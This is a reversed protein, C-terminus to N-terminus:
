IQARYTMMVEIYHDFAANIKRQFSATHKTEFALKGQNLLSEFESLKLRRISTILRHQVAEFDSLKNASLSHAILRQDKRWEKIMLDMVNKILEKQQDYDKEISSFDPMGFVSFVNSELEDFLQNQSIPKQLVAITDDSFTLAQGSVIIIKGKPNLISKLEPLINDIKLQRKGFNYDSIIFNFKLNKVQQLQTPHTLFKLSYMELMHQYWQVIQPDDEIILIKLQHNSNVSDDKKEITPRIDNKKRSFNIAFSFNSGKNPESDIHLESQCIKLLNVVIPIGLGAGASEGEAYHRNLIKEKQDATLGHGTDIIQFIFNKNESESLHFTVSGGAPTFKLANTILNNLIQYLRAPDFFALECKNKLDNKFTFTIKKQKALYKSSNFIDNCFDSISLWEPQLEITQTKIKNYDLIDNALSQLQQSSFQISDIFSTQHPLQQNQKLINIAGLISQLPNRIEHSMNELFDSKEKHAEEAQQKAEKIADHSTSIAYSMKEFERALEGIEDQRHIPLKKAGLSTSFVTLQKTIAKLERVQKRMYLFAITLILLGLLTSSILVTKRWSYFTALVDAKNASIITFLAYAKRNYKLKTFSDIAKETTIIKVADTLSALPESFDSFYGGEKNFEFTFAQEFNPHLIYHGDINTIKLIDNQPISRKLESFLDTLNINIIIIFDNLDGGKLKKGIRATPIYPKSLKGFERNLDIKSYYIENYNLAILENYYDRDAKNQLLTSPTKIIDTGKREIKILEQGPNSISILRVQFYNPKTRLFAEYEEALFSLNASDPIQEFQRLIPSSALQNLDTEVNTFFSEFKLHTMEATHILREETNLLVERYAYSILFVVSFSIAVCLLVFYVLANRAALSLKINKKM